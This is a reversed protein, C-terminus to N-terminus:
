GAPERLDLEQHARYMKDLRELYGTIQEDTIGVERMAQVQEFKLYGRSVLATIALVDDVTLKM